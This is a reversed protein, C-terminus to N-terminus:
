GRAGGVAAGGPHCRRGVRSERGPDGAVTGSRDVIIVVAEGEVEGRDPVAAVAGDGDPLIVVYDEPSLGAFGIGVAHEYARAM